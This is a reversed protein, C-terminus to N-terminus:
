WEGGDLASTFFPPTIGESERAEEHLTAKIILSLFLKVKVEFAHFSIYQLHQPLFPNFV